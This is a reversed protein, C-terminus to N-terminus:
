TAASRWPEYWSLTRETTESPVYEASFWSGYGGAELLAVIAPLDLAGTGPEHRGPWDAFQVHGINHLNRRLSAPIDEEMMAMHYLDAEIKLNPHGIRDIVASAEDLTNILYGPRDTTNMPEITLRIGAAQLESAAYYLNDYLVNICRDKNGGDLCVGVLVNVNRCRVATAYDRALVVHQRFDAERRPLSAIGVEGAARNGIPTNFSAIEVGALRALRAMDDAALEYPFQIEVGPFGAAGAAAFRERLPRETFMMSINACFRTM